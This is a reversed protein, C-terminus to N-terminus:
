YMLMEAHMYINTCTHMYPIRILVIHMDTLIYAFVYIYICLYLSTLSAQHEVFVRPPTCWAGRYQVRFSSSISLGTATSSAPSSPMSQEEGHPAGQDENQTRMAVVYEYTTIGQKSSLAVIFTMSIWLMLYILITFELFTGKEHSHSPLVFTRGTTTISATVGILLVGPPSSFRKLVGVKTMM